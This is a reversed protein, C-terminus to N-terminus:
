ADADGGRELEAAAAAELEDALDNLADDVQDAIHSVVDADLGHRRQLEDPVLRLRDAMRKFAGTVALAMEDAKVLRGQEREVLILAKRATALEQMQKPTLTPGDAPALLNDGFLELALQRNAEERAAREEAARELEGQRWANVQRLDLRYAVGNSGGELVPCGRKIWEKVTPVSVGFFDATESLNRVADGDDGATEPLHEDIAM